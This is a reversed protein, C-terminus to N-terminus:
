DGSVKQSLNRTLEAQKSILDAKLQVQRMQTDIFQRNAELTQLYSIDGEQYAQETLQITQQMSPILTDQLVNWDHCSQQYQLHSTRIELSAQQKLTELNLEARELEADARSNAGQNQNLVPLTTRISPGLVHGNTEGSTADAIGNFKLWSLRTLKRKEKGADIAFQAAIIDPRQKLSTTLLNDIEEVQCAPIVHPALAIQRHKHSAGLVNLLIEQKIKIDYQALAWDRKAIAADNKAILMDKGNLDGGELRKISLGYIRERLQSSTETVSLREQALVSQAYAVRVDRILNVGSQTLRYTTADAEQKMSRIRIPRLWLAELPLEIAYRYPKNTVGFSFLLEPNALLGANVLDAKAIKLDILLAKFAANNNLAYYVAESETIVLNSQLKEEVDLKEGAVNNGGSNAASDTLQQDHAIVKQMVKSQDAIEPLSQCGALVLLNALLIAASKIFPAFKLQM